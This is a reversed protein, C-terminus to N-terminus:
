YEFFLAIQRIIVLSGLAIVVGVVAYMAMKKATRMRSEDGGSTLFFVAAVIMMIIALVGFVLLLFNAARALVTQLKPANDIVGGAAYAVPVLDPIM